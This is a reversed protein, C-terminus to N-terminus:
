YCEVGEYTQWIKCTFNIDLLLNGVFSLIVSHKALNTHPLKFTVMDFHNLEQTDHCIILKLSCVKLYAKRMMFDIVHLLFDASLINITSLLDLPILFVLTVM